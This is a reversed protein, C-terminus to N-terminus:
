CSTNSIVSNTWIIDNVQQRAHFDLDCARNARELAQELAVLGALQWLDARSKGSQQLSVELSATQFPWDITSYILELHDAVGDMGQNNTANIPNFKYKHSDDNPNPVEDHMGNWNMCGDCGGTGDAYPICDHFVMRMLANETCEGGNQNKGLGTTAVGMAKKVSWIPTIMQLIRRRTTDVEEATWQGGPTGPIYVSDKEPGKDPTMDTTMYCSEDCEFDEISNVLGACLVFGFSILRMGVYIM